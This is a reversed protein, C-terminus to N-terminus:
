HLAGLPLGRSAGPILFKIRIVVHAKSTVSPRFGHRYIMNSLIYIYFFTFYLIIQCEEMKPEISGSEIHWWTVPHRMNLPLCKRAPIVKKIVVNLKCHHQSCGLPSFDLYDAHFISFHELVTHCLAHSVTHTIFPLTCTNMYPYCFNPKRYIIDISIIAKAGPKTIRLLCTGLYRSKQSIPNKKKGVSECQHICFKYGICAGHIPSLNCIDSLCINQENQFDIICVFDM